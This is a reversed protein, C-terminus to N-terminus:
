CIVSWVLSFRFRRHHLHFFISTRLRTVSSARVVIPNIILVFWLSIFALYRYSHAIEPSHSPLLIEPSLFSSPYASTSSSLQASPYSRFFTQNDSMRAFLQQLIAALHQPGAAPAAFFSGNYNNENTEYLYDYASFSSENSSTPTHILSSFMNNRSSSSSFSMSM